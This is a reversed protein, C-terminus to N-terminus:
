QENNKTEAEVKTEAKTEIEPETKVESEAKAVTEAEAKTEGKEVEDLDIKIANKIDNQIDEVAARVDVADKVEQMEDKLDSLDKKLDADMNNVAGKFERITKGLAQGLEPLKGPGFVVLAVGLVLLLETPGINLM